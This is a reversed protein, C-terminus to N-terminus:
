ETKPVCDNNRQATKKVSLTLIVDSKGFENIQMLPISKKNETKAFRKLVKKQEIHFSYFGTNSLTARRKGRPGIAFGDLRSAPKTTRRHDIRGQQM